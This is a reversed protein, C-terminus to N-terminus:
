IFDQQTASALVDDSNNNGGLVNKNRSAELRARLSETPKSVYIMFQAVAKNSSESYTLRGNDLSCSYIGGLASHLQYLSDITNLGQEKWDAPIETYRFHESNENFLHYVREIKDSLIDGKVGVVKEDTYYIGTEPDQGFNVIQKYTSGIKYYLNNDNIIYKRFAEDDYPVISWDEVLNINGNWKINDTMKKFMRRMALSSRTSNLMIRNTM